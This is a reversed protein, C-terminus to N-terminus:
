IFFYFSPDTVPRVSGATLTRSSQWPVIAAGAYAVLRTIYVNPPFPLVSGSYLLLSFLSTGVPVSTNAGIFYLSHTYSRLTGSPPLFTPAYRIVNRNSSALSIPCSNAFLLIANCLRQLRDGENHKIGFALSNNRSIFMTGYGGHACSSSAGGACGFATNPPIGRAPEVSIRGGSGGGGSFALVSASISLGGDASITGSGSFTVATVYVSGGAGGGGTSVKSVTTYVNEGNAAVIGDNQLIETSIVRVYGGGRGGFSPPVPGGPLCDCDPFTTSCCWDAHYSPIFGSPCCTTCPSGSSGRQLCSRGSPASLGAVRTYEWYSFQLKNTTSIVNQSGTVYEVFGTVEGFGHGGGSGMDVPVYPDGFGSGGKAPQTNCSDAGQGGYAGGGGGNQSSLGAGVGTGGWSGQSSAEVSASAAILIRKCQVTIKSFRIRGSVQLQDCSAISIQSQVWVDSFQISANQRVEINAVDLKIDSGMLATSDSLVLLTAQLQFPLCSIACSPVSVGMGAGIGCTVCGLRSRGELIIQRAMLTLNGFGLIAAGGQVSITDIFVGPVGAVVGTGQCILVKLDLTVNSGPVAFVSLPLPTVSAIADSPFQGAIFSLPSSTSRLRLTRQVFDMITGTGGGVCMCSGGAANIITDATSAASYRLLIRGGGGAGGSYPVSVGSCGIVADGGAAIFNAFLFSIFQIIFGIKQLDRVKRRWVGAGWFLVQLLLSLGVLAAAVQVANLCLCREVPSRACPSYWFLPPRRKSNQQLPLERWQLISQWLHPSNATGSRTSNSWENAHIFQM